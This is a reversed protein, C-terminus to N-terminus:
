IAQRILSSSISDTYPVYVIQIGREALWEETVGLQGHYDRHRWDSGVVIYDVPFAREIAPKSDAGGSNPIVADVYRCAELVEKRAEYPVVPDRGKYSRVFEDPNLAVTVRGDRGALGRCRLLLRVHGYHFLDFTGLTLVSM